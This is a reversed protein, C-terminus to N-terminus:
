EMKEIGNDSFFEDLDSPFNEIEKSELSWDLSQSLFLKGHYGNLSVEWSCLIETHKSKKYSDFCGLCDVIYDEYQKFYQPLGILRKKSSQKVKTEEKPLTAIAVNFISTITEEYGSLENPCVSNIIGITEEILAAANIMKNEISTLQDLSIQIQRQENLLSDIQNQLEQHRSKHSEILQTLLM